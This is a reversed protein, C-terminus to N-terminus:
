AQDEGDHQALSSSCKKHTLLSALNHGQVKLTKRQISSTSAALPTHTHTHVRAQTNPPERRRGGGPWRGQTRSSSVHGRGGTPLSVSCRSRSDKRTLSPAGGQIPTCSPATRPLPKEKEQGPASNPAPNYIAFSIGRCYRSASYVTPLRSLLTRTAIASAEM